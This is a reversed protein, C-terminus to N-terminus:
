LSSLSCGAGRAAWFSCPNSSSMIIYIRRILLEPSSDALVLGKKLADEEKENSSYQRRLERCM